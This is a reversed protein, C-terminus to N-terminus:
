ARQGSRPALDLSLKSPEVLEMLPAQCAAPSPAIPPEQERITYPVVEKM